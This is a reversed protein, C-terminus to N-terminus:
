IIVDMCSDNLIRCLAERSVTASTREDVVIDVLQELSMDLYANDNYINRDNDMPAQKEDLHIDQRTIYVFFASLSVVGVVLYIKMKNEFKKM